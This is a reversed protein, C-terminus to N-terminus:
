KRRDRGEDKPKKKPEATAWDVAPVAPAKVKDKPNPKAAPRLELNLFAAIKGATSIRIDAQEDLWKAFASHDVDAGKAIAYRTAGKAIAAETAARLQEDITM